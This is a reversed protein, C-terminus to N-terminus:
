RAQTEERGTESPRPGPARCSPAPTYLPCYQCRAPWEWSAPEISGRRGAALAPELSHPSPGKSRPGSPAGQGRPGRVRRTRCRARHQPQQEPGQATPPHPAATPAPLPQPLASTPPSCCRSCLPELLHCGHGVGAAAGAAAERQEKGAGRREQEKRSRSRAPCSPSEGRRPSSCFAPLVTGVGHAAPSTLSANSRGAATCETEAEQSGSFSSSGPDLGSHQRGRHRDSALLSLHHGLSGPPTSQSSPTEM